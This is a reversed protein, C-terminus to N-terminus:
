HAPQSYHSSIPWELVVGRVSNDTQHHEKSHEWTQETSKYLTDAYNGKLIM